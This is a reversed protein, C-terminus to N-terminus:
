VGHVVLAGGAAPVLPADGGHPADPEAPDPRVLGRAHVRRFVAARRDHDPLARVGPALRRFLELRVVAVDRARDGQGMRSTDATAREGDRPGVKGGPGDLATIKYSQRM